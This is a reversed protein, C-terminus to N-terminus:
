RITQGDHMLYKRTSPDQIVTGQRLFEQMRPCEGARHDEGGCGWCEPHNEQNMM